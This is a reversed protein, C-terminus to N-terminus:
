PFCTTRQVFRDDDTFALSFPQAVMAAAHVDIQYTEAATIFKDKNNPGAIDLIESFREILANSASGVTAILKTTRVATSQPQGQTSAMQRQWVAPSRVRQTTHV